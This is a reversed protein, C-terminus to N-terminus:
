HGFAEAVEGACALGDAIANVVLSSGRRCDGALWVREGARHESGRKPVEVELAEFVAAEPGTFGM